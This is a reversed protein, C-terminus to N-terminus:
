ARKSAACQAAADEGEVTSPVVQAKGETGHQLVM